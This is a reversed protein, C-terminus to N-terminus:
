FLKIQYALERVLQHMTRKEGKKCDYGRIKLMELNKMLDECSHEKAEEHQSAYWLNEYQPRYKENFFISRRISNLTDRVEHNRLGSQQSCMEGLTKVDKAFLEQKELYLNIDRSKVIQRTSLFDFVRIKMPEWCAALVGGFLLAGCTVGDLGLIFRSDPMLCPQASFRRRAPSALPTNSTASAALPQHLPRKLHRPPQPPLGFKHVRFLPTNHSNQMLGFLWIAM